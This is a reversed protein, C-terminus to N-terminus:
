LAEKILTVTRTTVVEAPLKAVVLSEPNLGDAWTENPRKGSAIRNAVTAENLDAVVSFAWQMGIGFGGKEEKWFRLYCGDKTMFVYGTNM